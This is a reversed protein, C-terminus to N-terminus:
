GTFSADGSVPAAPVPQPAPAPARQLTETTSSPPASTATTTSTPQAGVYHMTVTAYQFLPESPGSPPTCYATVTTDFDDFPGFFGERTDPATTVSWSGDPAVDAIAYLTGQMNDSNPYALHAAIVQELTKDLWTRWRDTAQIRRKKLDGGDAEKESSIRRFLVGSGATVEEVAIGTEKTFADFVFRDLNSDNASYVVVKNQAHALGGFTMVAIATLLGVVRHTSM